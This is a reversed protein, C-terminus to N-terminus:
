IGLYSYRSPLGGYKVTSQSPKPDYYVVWNGTHPNVSAAKVAMDEQGYKSNLDDRNKLSRLDVTYGNRYQYQVAFQDKTYFESQASEDNARSCMGNGRDVWGGPCQDTPYLKQFEWGWGIKYSDKPVMNPNGMQQWTNVDIYCIDNDKTQRKNNKPESIPLRTKLYPAFLPDLFKSDDKPYYGGISLNIDM